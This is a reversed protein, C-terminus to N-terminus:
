SDPNLMLPPSFDALDQENSYVVEYKKLINSQFSEPIKNWDMVQVLIPINSEQLQEQFELLEGFVLPALDATRIVLDLDSADHSDGNVRSGYAWIEIPTKFCQKAITCLTEHDKPKLDLM